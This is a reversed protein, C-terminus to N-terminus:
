EEISEYQRGFRGLIWECEKDTIVSVSSYRGSYNQTRVSIFGLVVTACLTISLIIKVVKM